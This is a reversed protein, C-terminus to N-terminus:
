EMEEEEELETVLVSTINESPVVLLVQRSKSLQAAPKIKINAFEGGQPFSINIVEGIPYGQPFRGGLGSTVLLDGVRIDANHPLYELQLSKNIGRGTVVGRLGNRNVQVPIAHSPNTLLVVNSSFPGVSVVQGMVGSSDLVPQGVFVDSRNGKDIVVKQSFPDLDITLIEAVKVRENLRFSSGLLERLRMNERELSEFKQLRRSNLLNAMELASNKERLEDRDQSFDSLWDLANYPLAAVTKIPYVVASMM